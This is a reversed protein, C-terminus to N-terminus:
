CGLVQWPLFFEVKQTGSLQYLEKVKRKFTIKQSLKKKKVTHTHGPYHIKNFILIVNFCLVFTMRCKKDLSVKKDGTTLSRM